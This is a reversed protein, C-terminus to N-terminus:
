WILSEEDRGNGKESKRAQKMQGPGVTHCSSQVIDMTAVQTMPLHVIAPLMGEEWGSDILIVCERVHM